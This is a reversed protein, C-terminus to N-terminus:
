HKFCANPRYIVPFAERVKPWFRGLLNKNVKLNRRHNAMALVRGSDPDVAVFVGYDPRHEELLSEMANQLGEDITYNVTSKHERGKRHVLVRQPYHNRAIPTSITNRVLEQDIGWILARDGEISSLLTPWGFAGLLLVAPWGLLLSYLYLKKRM